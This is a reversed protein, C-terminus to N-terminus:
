ELVLGLGSGSGSEFGSGLELNKIMIKFRSRCIQQVLGCTTTAGWFRGGIELHSM